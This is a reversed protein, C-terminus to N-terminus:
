GTGESQSIGRVIGRAAFRRPRAAFGAPQSRLQARVWPNLWIPDTTWRMWVDTCSQRAENHNTLLGCTVMYLNREHGQWNYLIYYLLSYYLIIPRYGLKADLYYSWRMLYWTDLHHQPNYSFISCADHHYEGLRYPSTFIMMVLLGVTYEWVVRFLAM